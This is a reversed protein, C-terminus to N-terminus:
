RTVYLSVSFLLAIYAYSQQSSERKREGVLHNLLKPPLSCPYCLRLSLAKGLTHNTILTLLAAKSGNPTGMGYSKVSMHHQLQTIQLAVDTCSSAQDFM